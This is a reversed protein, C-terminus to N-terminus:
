VEKNENIKEIIIRYLMLDNIIEVADDSEPDVTGRKDKLQDMTQSVAYRILRLETNSFM